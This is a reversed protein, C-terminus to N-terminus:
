PQWVIIETGDSDGDPDHNAGSQYDLSGHTVNTVDFFVGIDFRNFRKSQVTCRGSADTTCSSSGEGGFDWVGTVTAGEVPIHTDDHVAVNVYARWRRGKWAASGDLDGVHM